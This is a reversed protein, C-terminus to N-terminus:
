CHQGGTVLFTDQLFELATVPSVLAATEMKLLAMKSALEQSTM